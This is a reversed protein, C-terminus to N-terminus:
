PRLTGEISDDFTRGTIAGAVLKALVVARNHKTDWYYCHEPVVKIVTIRPDNQGETFWVKHLPEWLEDIRKPDTTIAAHGYITLFGAHAGGQFMLQVTHHDAIQANQESDSASLFWLCGDDDVDQVTMPRTPIPGGDNILGTCFFCTSAKKVLERLKDLADAGTLDAHNQEPQERNISSM